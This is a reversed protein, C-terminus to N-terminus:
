RRKSRVADGAILHDALARFAPLSKPDLYINSAWPASGFRAIVMEARPDIYIAQGYVGRAEYVGHDDHSVWWQDHYSWGPLTTYGGNVFKEPSGGRRIEAVVAAPIVQQGNWAGDLRMMEGFRALDRLGMNLGGAGIASGHSDVQIYADQEAGLKEWIRQQLVQQASKGAVRCILWATVEANASRYTFGAGHEGSKKITPLYEYMSRPGQYGPPLPAMGASRAFDWIEAAPDTYKESFKIATTMDLLQRVTADGFASDKLEPIYRSVLANEDLRGEHVLMAALTGFFSKTVSHAIHQGQATLAGFYKEYIIKGRHLVVIGDTYNAALSEAWTMRPGGGLPTFSVADIDNREARPLVSVKGNGRYIPATPRLERWHSLAWRLQPFRLYSGDEFAVLRDASPPSGVMYGLAVPDSARADPYEAAAQQANAPAALLLALLGATLKKL